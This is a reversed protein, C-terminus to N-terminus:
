DEDSEFVAKFLELNPKEVGMEPVYDEEARSGEEEHLDERGLRENLSKEDLLALQSKKMTAQYNSTKNPITASSDTPIPQSM